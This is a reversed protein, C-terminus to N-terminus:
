VAGVMAQAMDENNYDWWQKDYGESVHEMLVDQRKSCYKALDM